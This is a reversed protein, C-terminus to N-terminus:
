FAFRAAAADYWHRAFDPCNACNKHHPSGCWNEGTRNGERRAAFSWAMSDASALAAAVGPRALGGLKVGFGHLKLGAGALGALVGAVEATAQRRCVTGVGVRGLRELRVGWCEYLRLHREYDAPAWGQLVPLWPVGPARELLDAYDACTRDQHDWVTLGTQALIVPECMWDRPGVWEPASGVGATIRQVQDVYEGAGVTWRGYLSLETFAGSDLAWAGQPRPPQTRRGALVRRSVVLPVAALQPMILFRADPAGLYFRRV